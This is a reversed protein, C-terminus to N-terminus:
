TAQRKLASGGRSFGCAHFRRKRSVIVCPSTVVFQYKRSTVRPLAGESDREAGPSKRGRRFDEFTQVVAMAAEGIM